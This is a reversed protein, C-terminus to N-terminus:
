KEYAFLRQIEILDNEHKLLKDKVWDFKMSDRANEWAIGTERGFAIELDKDTVM